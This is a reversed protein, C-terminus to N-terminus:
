DAKRFPTRSELYNRDAATGARERELFESVAERFGPHAIWHASWTEVPEYGRALKHGGQAGAEVRSLGLQIALDIAQYYCLEFHLFPKEIRAGWYQGYLADPGIFNLAGAVPQDDAYALVLVIRQAM